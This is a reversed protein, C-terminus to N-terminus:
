SAVPASRSMTGFWANVSKDITAISGGVPKSAARLALALERLRAPDLEGSRDGACVARQPQGGDDPVDFLANPELPAPHPRELSEVHRREDRPSGQIWDGDEGDTLPECTLNGAGLEHDPLGQSM